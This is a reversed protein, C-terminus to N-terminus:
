LLSRRGGAAPKPKLEVYPEISPVTCRPIKEGIRAEIEAVIPKERWTAISSV